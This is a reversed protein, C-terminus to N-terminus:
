HNWLARIAAAREARDLGRLDVAGRETVLVDVDHSPTSVPASLHDVLTSRGKHETLLAVISLGGPSRTASVAYDGHGGVGGVSASPFGEVNVQGQDDVELATNVAVLPAGTSLRTGDHTYGVPRLLPRGDAWQLLRSGGALYTTVAEGRMLGRADLDVVAEPLLGSDISIPERLADLVATGLAGPGVQLRAGQPILEVVREALARHGEEPASFRLEIPPEDSEGVIVLREQPLPPGVECRPRNRNVVAAVTAGSAIAAPLWSVETGLGLSGDDRPVATVVVVDPRWPGVLLAPVASLRVPPAHVAGAEVHRRLGWGGMLTRVDAFPTPDLRDDAQPLWGLLLHLDEVARAADALVPLIGTPTGIGDGVVVRHGPRLLDTLDSSRLTM